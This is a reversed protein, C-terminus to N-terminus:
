VLEDGADVLCVRKGELWAPKEVLMQAQRCIHECLWRLWEGSNGIRNYVAIKNLHYENSLQLLAATNGFSKRATLYLFTLKLHHDV